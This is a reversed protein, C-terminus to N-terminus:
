RSMSSRRVVCTGSWVDHLGVPLPGLLFTLPELPILRILTRGLIQLFTAAAGSAAVTRTGTVLKGMTLGFLAESPLYYLVHIGVAIPYQLIGQLAPFLSRALDPTKIALVVLIVALLMAQAVLDILFNCLRRTRSALDATDPPTPAGDVSTRPPAYPNRQM